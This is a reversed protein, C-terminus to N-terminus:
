VVDKKVAVHHVQGFKFQGFILVGFAVVIWVSYAIVVTMSIQNVSVENYRFIGTYVNALGLLTLSRGLWWHAKDWLPVSPRDPSFLANSVFGLVIQAVMGVVVALGIAEHPTEFHPPLRTLLKILFGAATLSGTVGLMLAVHLRYWWVGLADKLFRAVFIGAFPSVGWAFFMILGHILSARDDTGLPGLPLIRQPGASTVSITGGTGSAVASLDGSFTDSFDHQSFAARTPDDANRPSTSSFAYIYDTSKPSPNLSNGSNAANLVNPRSTSFSITAWTPAPAQLPIQRWAGTPNYDVGYPSHHSRRSAIAIAGSSNKYGIVVDGGVMTTTGAGLAAWGAAASNVTYITNGKGDGGATVCYASGADNLGATKGGDASFCITGQSRVGAMMSALVIFLLHTRLPRGNSM